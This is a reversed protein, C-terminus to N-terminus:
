KLIDPLYEDFYFNRYGVTIRNGFDALIHFVKGFETSFISWNGHETM